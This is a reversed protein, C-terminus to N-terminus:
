FKRQRKRAKKKFLTPSLLRKLPFAISRHRSKRRTRGEDPSMLNLNPQSIGADGQVLTQPEVAVGEWSEDNEPEDNSEVSGDCKSSHLVEVCLTADDRHERVQRSELVDECSPLNVSVLFLEEQPSLDLNEMTKKDTACNIGFDASKLGQSDQDKPFADGNQVACNDSDKPVGRNLPAPVITDSISPTSVVFKDDDCCSGRLGAVELVADRVLAETVANEHWLAPDSQDPSVPQSSELRVLDFRNSNVHGKLANADVNEGKTSGIEERDEAVDVAESLLVRKESVENSPMQHPTFTGFPPGQNQKSVINFRNRKGPELSENDRTFSSVLGSACHLTKSEDSSLEAGKNGYTLDKVRFGKSSMSEVISNFDIAKVTGSVNNSISFSNKLDDLLMDGAGSSFPDWKLLDGSWLEESGLRESSSIAEVRIAEKYFKRKKLANAILARCNKSISAKGQEMSIGLLSSVNAVDYPGRIENVSSAASTIILNKGRTWDVLLKATSIVQRRMQPDSILSSYSIEFCVGREIATKVMPLKLRFPLKESFDIAIIDVESKECVHDFAAQNLPRVAVLDYSKLVPNGSNLVQAQSVSDAFVTLRTYQRFASALPLGLLSRHLSVSSSLSPAVKLLASLSLLPISCRDRDSMVGRMSRNYAVGDYGLEMAKTAIRVLNSKDSPSSSGEYPINLDFFGM